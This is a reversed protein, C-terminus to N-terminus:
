KQGCPRGITLRTDSASMRRSSFRFQYHSGCSTAPGCPSGSCPGPAPAGAHSALSM